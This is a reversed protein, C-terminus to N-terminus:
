VGCQRVSRCSGDELRSRRVAKTAAAAALQSRAAIEGPTTGLLEELDDLTLSMGESEGARPDGRSDQMRNGQGQGQRQHRRFWLGADRIRERSSALFGRLGFCWEVPELHRREVLEAFLSGRKILKYCAGDEVTMGGEPVLAGDCHRITAIRSPLFLCVVIEEGPVVSAVASTSTSTDSQMVFVWLM